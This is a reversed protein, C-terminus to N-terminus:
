LDRLTRAYFPPAITRSLIAKFSRRVSEVERRTRSIM